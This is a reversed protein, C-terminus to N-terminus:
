AAPKPLKAAAETIPDILPLFQRTPVNVRVKMPKFEVAGKANQQPVDQVGQFSGWGRQPRELVAALLRLDDDQIEVVSGAEFARVTRIAARAADATANYRRDTDVVHRVMDLTSYPSNGVTIPASVTFKAM